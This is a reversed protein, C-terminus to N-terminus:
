TIEVRDHVKRMASLTFSVELLFALNVHGPSWTINVQLTYPDVERSHRLGTMACASEGILYVAVDTGGPVM